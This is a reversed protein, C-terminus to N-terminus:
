CFSSAGLPNCASCSDTVRIQGSRVETLNMPVRPKTSTLTFDARMGKPNRKHKHGKTIATMFQGYPFVDAFCDPFIRAISHGNDNSSRISRRKPRERLKM